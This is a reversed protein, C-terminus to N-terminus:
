IFWTRAAESKWPLVNYLCLKLIRLLLKCSKRDLSSEYFPLFNGPRLSSLIEYYRDIYSLQMCRGFHFSEVKGEELLDKDIILKGHRLYNLVPGFYRPDRDIM